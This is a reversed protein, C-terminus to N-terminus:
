SIVEDLAAEAALTEPSSPKSDDWATPPLPLNPDNENGPISLGGGRLCLPSAIGPPLRSPRIWRAQMIGTLYTLFLLLALGKAHM